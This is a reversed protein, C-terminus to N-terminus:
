VVEVQVTESNVEIIKELSKEYDGATYFPTNPMPLLHICGIILKKDKDMRTFINDFGQNVKLEGLM